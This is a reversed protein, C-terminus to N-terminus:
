NPPLWGTVKQLEKNLKLKKNTEKEPLLGESRQRTETRPGFVTAM